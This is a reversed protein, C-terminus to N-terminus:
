LNAPLHAPLVTLGEATAAARLRDDLCVFALPRPAGAAIDLAAALQLADAASLAHRTLLTEAMGVTAHIDSAVLWTAAAQAVEERLEGVQAATVRGSRRARCVASVIEVRTLASTAIAPDATLMARLAVATTEHLYLSGLASSDWYRM